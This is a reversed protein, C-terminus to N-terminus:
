RLCTSHYLVVKRIRQTHETSEARLWSFSVFGIGIILMIMCAKILLFTIEWNLRDTSCSCTATTCRDHRHAILLGPSQDSAEGGCTWMRQLGRSTGLFTADWSDTDPSITSSVRPPSQVSGPDVATRGVQESSFCHLLGEYSGTPPAQLSATLLGLGIVVL